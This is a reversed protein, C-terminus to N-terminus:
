LVQWQFRRGSGLANDIESLRASRMAARLRFCTGERCIRKDNRTTQDNDTPRMRARCAAFAAVVFSRSIFHLCLRVSSACLRPRSELRVQWPQLKNARLWGHARM